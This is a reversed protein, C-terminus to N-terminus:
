EHTNSRDSWSSAFVRVVDGNRFFAKSTAVVTEAPLTFDRNTDFRLVLMGTIAFGEETYHGLLIPRYTEGLASTWQEPSLSGDITSDETKTNSDECQIEAEILEQVKQEIDYPPSRDGSQASLVPGEKKMLYLFGELAGSQVILMELVYKARQGPGMRRDVLLTDKKSVVSADETVIIDEVTTQKVRRAEYVLKEYKASLAANRGTGFQQACLEAYSNYSNYDNMLVAVRARTEYALGVNLGSAAIEKFGEIAADSLEVARAADGLKIEAIALPMRVFNCAPGLGEREAEALFERGATRAEEARGLALLTRVIAGAIDAWSQHRGPASQGLAKQLLALSGTYDGRIRQYEGRAYNRTAIWSQFRRAMRDIDNLNQKLGWLDDALAYAAAWRALHSGRYLQYPNHQTQLLEIRQKCEETGIGDGKWLYYSARIYLANLRHAPHAEIESASQLASDIGLTAELMGAGRKVGFLTQKYYTKEFGAHDPQTLRDLIERYKTLADPDRSTIRDGIAQHLRAIVGFVPSLPKLPELSPLSQWFEYDYSTATVGLAAVLTRALERVADLPSLVREAEPTSDYRQQALALAHTLRETDPLSEDLEHYFKLGSYQALRDTFEIIPEGYQAVAFPIIGILRSQLIYIQKATRGSKKALVVAEEYSEYWDSPLSELLEAYARPNQDTLEKSAQSFEIWADLAREHQGAKLLHHAARFPENERKIFMEAVRLHLEQRQGTDLTDLLPAVWAERSFSYRKGDSMLIESAILEGLEQVLRATDRHRTLFGCEELSYSQEPSLALTRALQLADASLKGLRAELAERISSPLDESDISSPITWAGYGYYIHGKDVLHQALQMVVRPNGQSITHLRDALLKINPVRSFVSGLLRETQESTLNAIKIRYSRETLMKIATKSTERVHSKVTAAIFIKEGAIERSLLAIFAASPEDISEIDDIALMLCHRSSVKLIWDQLAAHIKIRLEQPEESVNAVRESRPADLPKSDDAIRPRPVKEFDASRDVSAERAEGQFAVRLVGSNRKKELLEPVIPGLVSIHPEAADVAIPPLAEILQAAIAKVVGWGGARSDSADARLITFASLKGQLVCTDLFRSRGVGSEGEIIIAGGQGRRARKLRSRVRALHVERGALTPTLLYAQSVILRDDVQLGAIASIKEIVEATNIPRAIPDLSLMSMVLHDLEKPIEEVLSSPPAPKNSMVEHLKSFTKSPYANRGTLGYYFTAGLSYLDTRADLPQLMIVEPATYTPTGVIQKNLGMPVMAGFDILKAKGDRTCRVNRPSLDRHVHRRSHILGLASCVDIMLSCARTWPVPALTQLDGGELLEMTYYPMDDEIGYDYVEIIRPHVMQSITYFEYEFLSKIREFASTNSKAVLQKLAVTKGTASDLVAYVAAMGGQGLKKQVQYRNAIVETTSHDRKNSNASM